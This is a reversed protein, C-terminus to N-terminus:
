RQVKPGTLRVVAQYGVVGGAVLVGGVALWVVPAADPHTLNLLGVAVPGIGLGSLAGFVSANMGLRSGVAVVLLAGLPLTLVILPTFAAIIGAALVPGVLMWLLFQRWTPPAPRAWGYKIPRSPMLAM